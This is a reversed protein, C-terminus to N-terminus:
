PQDVRTLKAEVELLQLIRDLSRDSGLFLYHFAIPALAFVPLMFFPMSGGSQVNGDFAHVIAVVLFLSVIAYYLFFFAYAWLPARYQADITCGDQTDVLRGILAPKANYTFIGFSADFLNMYNRRVEGKVGGSVFFIRSDSAANIRKAVQSSPLPSHLRVRRGRFYEVFGM